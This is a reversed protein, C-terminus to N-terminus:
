FERYRGKQPREYRFMNSWYYIRLPFRPNVLKNQCILRTAGATGEPRLVLQRGKRDSFAFMEKQVIDTTEGVSTTFTEPHEYTPLIVPQYGANNLINQTIQQIQQYLLAKAPLIDQTGRPKSLIKSSKNVM